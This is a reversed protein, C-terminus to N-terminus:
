ENNHNKILTIYEDFNYKMGNEDEYLIDDSTSVEIQTLKLKGITIRM